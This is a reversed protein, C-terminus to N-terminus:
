CSWVAHVTVTAMRNTAFLRLGVGAVSLSATNRSTCIRLRLRDKKTQREVDTLPYPCVDETAIIDLGPMEFGFTAHAAPPMASEMHALSGACYLQRERLECGAYSRTALDVCLRPLQGELVALIVQDRPNLYINKGPPKLHEIPPGMFRDPAIQGFVFPHPHLGYSCGTISLASTKYKQIQHFLKSSTLTYHQCYKTYHNSM